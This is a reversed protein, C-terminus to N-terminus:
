IIDGRLATVESFAYFQDRRRVNSSIPYVFVPVTTISEDGPEQWRKGYDAHGIGFNVLQDYSITSKRFFYGLKYTVNVSVSFGQFSFTNRISGFYKPVSPGSYVLSDPSILSNAIGLYDKSLSKNLYGQPNGSADLGGWRYSSISYISKGAIASISRGTSVPYRFGPTIYYHTTKSVNYSLHLSTFWKFKRNINKTKVIMDWGTGKMDAVNKTLTRTSLGATYEIPSIGFLDFGKKIYFDFSGKVIQGKTELDFGVNLQNVKEWSLDNNAYQSIIAQQTGTYNNNVGLYGIVTVASKSQDVIGSYGYTARLKLNPIFNLHYFSESSLNWALGASWFPLWKDNANVGFLNSADKRVSASITYRDALNFATNAFVSVYRNMRESFSYGGPIQQPYGTVYTPYLNVLDVNNYTLLDADYGYLNDASSNEKIQRIESGFIGTVSNNGWRKSFDFQTRFNQSKLAVESRYLTGGIPINRTIEGTAHDIQTFNNILDRAAFSQLDSFASAKAGQNGYQYSLSLSLSRFFRYKLGIQGTLSQTNSRVIRHQPEELPYNNWDLLRGNGATDIYSQRYITAVALAHGNEDALKAYPIYRRDVRFGQGSYPDRGGTSNTNAFSVSASLELNKFIKYDNKINLNIREQKGSLNDVDANYAGSILYNYKSTGGSLNLSYVQSVARSYVYRSYDNRVDQLKLTNIAFASDDASILGRQRNLFVEVAPSLAPMSVSNINANFAGRNFLLEEVNIYDSIDMQPVAFLDPKNTIQLNANFVLTFPQDYKGKKTTIVIVGNGARSGWISTAAADKLLTISEIDDPNINTIDQEYPFNDVVILPDQSGNITSLGRININLKRNDTINKTNDFLISSSVGQLRDIINNGTQLNLTKTDVFEFAGTAREKPIQQFGTNIIVEQLEGAARALSIVLPVSTKSDIRLAKRQFGVSTIILSDPKGNYSISFNGYVDTTTITRQLKFTITASIIPHNDAMDKISGNIRQLSATDQACVNVGPLLM